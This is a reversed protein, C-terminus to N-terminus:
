HKIPHFILIKTKKLSLLSSRPAEKKRIVICLLWTTSKSGGNTQLRTMQSQDVKADLLMKCCQSDFYKADASNDIAITKPLTSSSHQKEVKNKRFDL